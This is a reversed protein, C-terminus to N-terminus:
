EEAEVMGFQSIYEEELIRFFKERAQITIEPRFTIKGNAEPQLRRKEIIEKADDPYDEWLGKALDGIDTSSIIPDILSNGFLCFSSCGEIRKKSIEFFDVEEM